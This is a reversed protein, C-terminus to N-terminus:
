VQWIRHLLGLVGVVVLITLPVLTDIMITGEQFSM